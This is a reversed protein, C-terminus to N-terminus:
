TTCKQPIKNATLPSMARLFEWESETVPNTMLWTWVKWPNRRRGDIECRCIEDTMLEGTAPDIQGGEWWVRAPLWPGRAWQGYPFKRVRYFGAQPEDERPTFPWESGTSAAEWWAWRQEPTTPRRM